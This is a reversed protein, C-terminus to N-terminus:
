RHEEITVDDYDALCFESLSGNGAIPSCLNVVVEGASHSVQRLEGRVTAEVGSSFEWGFTIVRDIDTGSLEIAEITRSM